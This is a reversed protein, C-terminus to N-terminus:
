LIRGSYTSYFLVTTFAPATIFGLTPVGGAVRCKFENNKVDGIIFVFFSCISPHCLPNLFWVTNICRVALQRCGDDSSGCTHLEGGGGAWVRARLGVCSVLKAYRKTDQSDKSDDQSTSPPSQNAESGTKGVSETEEKPGSSTEKPGSSTEKSVDIDSLGLVKEEESGTGAVFEEYTFKEKFPRTGLLEVMDDRTLVENEM